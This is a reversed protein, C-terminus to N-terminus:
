KYMGGPLISVKGKLSNLLKIIGAKVGLVGLPGGYMTVIDMKKGDYYDNIRSDEGM